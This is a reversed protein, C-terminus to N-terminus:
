VIGKAIFSEAMDVVSEQIPRPDYGLVDAAREHSLDQRLGLEPVALRATKDFLAVLRLVFSPLRRTPVKYGRDRFNDHLIRAVQLMSVDQDAVIFRKGAAEPATMAAMHAAAVDRVDVMAWSVGPCAPFERKLLKRV